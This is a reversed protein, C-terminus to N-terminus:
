EPEPARLAEIRRSPAVRRSLQVALQELAPQGGACAQAALAEAAEFVNRDVIRHARADSLADSAWRTAQGWRGAAASAWARLARHLCGSPLAAGELEDACAELYAAAASVEGHLLSLTALGLSGPHEARTGLSRHWAVSRGYAARAGALDGAVRLLDGEVVDGEAISWFSACRRSRALAGDDPRGAHFRVASVLRWAECLAAPPGHDALATVAEDLVAASEDLHGQMLLVRGLERRALGALGLDGLGEALAEAETMLRRGEDAEGRRAAAYARLVLAHVRTLSWGHRRAELECRASVSQMGNIDGCFFACYGRLLWASGRQPDAPSLAQLAADVADLLAAAPAPEGALVRGGASRLALAVAAGADGAGLAHRVQRAEVVSTRAAGGRRALMAAIAGNISRVLGLRQARRVVARALSGHVFRWAGRGLPGGTVILGARQLRDLLGRDAVEGLEALAGDLERDVVVGGLVGAAALTREAAAGDARLQRQLRDGWVAELDAPLPDGPALALGAPTSVLSGAEHLSRVMQVAFLPNGRAHEVLRRASSGEIGMPGQLLATLEAGGMAGLRLAGVEPLGLLTELLTNMEGDRLLDADASRSDARVSAVLLAPIDRGRAFLHHAFCLADRGWQVDDLYIFIVRQRGGEVCLARMLSLIADYRELPGPTLEAGGTLWRVVRDADAEPVGLGSLRARAGAAVAEPPLDTLDLARRLMAGVGQGPGWVPGHWATWPVVLGLEVARTRIAGLLAARGEGPAGRLVVGMPRAEEAARRLAAWISRQEMQRGILPIARGGEGEAHAGVPWREWARPGPRAWDPVVAPRGRHARLAEAVAAACAPAGRGDRQAAGLLWAGLPGEPTRLWSRALRLMDVLDDAPSSREPMWSGTRQAELVGRLGADVLVLPGQEAELRVAGPGLGGHVMGLAHLHALGSLGDMLLAEVVDDDLSAEAPGPLSIWTSILAGAGAGAVAEPGLWGSLPAVAPHDARLGVSVVERLRQLAPENLAPLLRLAFRGGLLRDEALWLVGLGAGPLAGQPALLQLSAPPPPPAAESPPQIPAFSM